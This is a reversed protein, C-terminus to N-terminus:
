RLLDVMSQQRVWLLAVGVALIAALVKSGLPHVTLWRGTRRGVASRALTGTALLPLLVSAPNYRAAERIQGLALLRTARTMGCMPDMVGIRHLPGHLDIPPLGFLAMAFAAALGAVVLGAAFPYRDVPEWEFPPRPAPTLRPRM